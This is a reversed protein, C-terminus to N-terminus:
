SRPSRSAVTLRTQPLPGLKALIAELRAATIRLAVIRLPVNRYSFSGATSEVLISPLELLEGYGEAYRRVIDPQGPFPAPQSSATPSRRCSSM